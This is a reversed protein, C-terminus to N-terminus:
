PTVGNVPARSLNVFSYCLVDMRFLKTKLALLFDTGGDSDRDRVM